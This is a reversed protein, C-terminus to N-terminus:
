LMVRENGSAVVKFNNLTYMFMKIKFSATRMQIYNRQIAIIENVSAALIILYM